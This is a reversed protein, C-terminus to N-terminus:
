FQRRPREERPRAVNVFLERGDVEKGNMAEMAKNADAEKALQIMRQLSSDTCLKSARMEFTGYQNVTGSTVNDGTKKDIPISEGTMISQDISSEGSIIVGDVPITEGAVVTLIDGVVVESAPIVVDKENQKVCATQPTLKVLKEIGQRAKRSTYQELLSGIQMILAVEGAAFFEGIWVSAILAMSVLVDAKIDHEKILATAAGLIIPIGCLVIAIWAVDFPLIGTLWGGLSFALSTASVITCIITPKTEGTIWEKIIM